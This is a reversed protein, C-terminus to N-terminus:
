PTCTVPARPIPPLAHLPRGEGWQGAVVAPPISKRTIGGNLLRRRNM